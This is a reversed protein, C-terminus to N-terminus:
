YLWFDKYIFQEDENKIFRLNFYTSSDGSKFWFQIHSINKEILWKTSSITFSQVNRKTIFLQTTSFGNFQQLCLIQNNQIAYGQKQSKVWQHILLLLVLILLILGIWRNLLWGGIISLLGMLLTWRWFYWLKEKTVLHIDPEIIGMEPLFEAIKKYVIRTRILPFLFIKESALGEEKEQGGMLILEVSSMGFLNRLLQKHVKVAQIKELPIKQTKRELLGYDVSLTEEQLTVKFRHFSIVNKIIALLIIAVLGFLFIFLSVVWQLHNVWLEVESFFIDPVWEILFTVITGFVLFVSLDTLSYIFLQKNSLTFSVSPVLAIEESDKNNSRSFTRLQEITELLSSDVATLSAEAEGPTSSATEILLEVVKFPKFFFWQRQKITQIRDYSIDTEKKKIIGKYVIIKQMTLQYTYTFYKVLSTIMVIVLIASIAVLELALTNDKDIVVIIIFFLWKRIGKIFHVIMVSPHFKRRESSM